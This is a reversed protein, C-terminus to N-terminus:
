SKPPMKLAAQLEELTGLLEFNCDAQLQQKHEDYMQRTAVMCQILERNKDQKIAATIKSAYSHFDINAAVQVYYM